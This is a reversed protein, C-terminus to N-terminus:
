ENVVLIVKGPVADKEVMEHAQAADSLSLKKSIQPKFLNNAFHGNLIQAFRGLEEPELDTITFGYITCNHGYLKGIGVSCRHALGSSILIRARRKVVGLAFDIEPQRTLDWYVDVGEPAFSQLSKAIDDSKYNIVLDAGSEKCWNAKDESGATVAVRAGISKALETACRGVNGSGGNIFVTEGAKLKAKEVLGLVATLGSHMTALATMSDAGAPLPYLLASDIALYEAFTGQRGSYGQNNCWVRQGVALPSAVDTGVAAVTGIMDRGIIFPIPLELKYAGSRIYTDVPAVAVAAVRVLVQGASLTPQPLEGYKIVSPAGTQEIYAAKMSGVIASNLGTTRGQEVDSGDSGPGAHPKM